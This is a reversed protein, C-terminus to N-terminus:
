NKVVVYVHSKSSNVVRIYRDNYLAWHLLYQTHQVAVFYCHIFKEHSDGEYCFVFNWKVFSLWATDKCNYEVSVFRLDWPAVFM